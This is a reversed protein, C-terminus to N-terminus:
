RHFELVTLYADQYRHYPHTRAVCQAMGADRFIDIYDSYERNFVPPNGRRRWKRDMIESVFVTPAASVLRAAVASIDDDSVHLLVTHAFAYDAVPLTEHEGVERFDHQSQARAAGLAHSSVDVGIYREVPFARALRGTGCGFELVAGPMLEVLWAGFDEGEPWTDKGPTIHQLGARSRWYEVTSM